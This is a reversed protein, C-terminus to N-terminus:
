VYLGVGVVLGLGLLLLGLLLLGLLRVGVGLGLLGLWPRL